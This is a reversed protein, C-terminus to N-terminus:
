VADAAVIVSTTESEVTVGQGNKLNIWHSRVVLAYYIALGVGLIGGIPGGHMGILGQFVAYVVAVRRWLYFSRAAEVDGKAAKFGKCCFYLGILAMVILFISGIAGADIMRNADRVKDATSEEDETTTADADADKDEQEISHDIRGKQTELFIAFLAALLSFCWGVTEFLALLYVGFPLSFCCCGSVMYKNEATPAPTEVTTQTVVVYAPPAMDAVKKQERKEANEAAGTQPQMLSM